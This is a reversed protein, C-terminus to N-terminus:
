SGRIRSNEQVADASAAPSVWVDGVHHLCTWVGGLRAHAGAMGTHRVAVVHLDLVTMHTLGVMGHHASDM